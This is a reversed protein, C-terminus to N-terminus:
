ARVRNRGGTMFQLRRIRGYASALEIRFLLEKLNKRSKSLKARIM